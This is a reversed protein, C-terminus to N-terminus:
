HGVAFSSFNAKKKILLASSMRCPPASAPLAINEAYPPLRPPMAPASLIQWVAASCTEAQWFFLTHCANRLVGVIFAISRMPVPGQYSRLPRNHDAFRVLRTPSRGLSASGAILFLM